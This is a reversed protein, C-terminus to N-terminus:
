MLICLERLFTVGIIILPPFNRIDDTLHTLNHLSNVCSKGGEVEEKLIKHRWILRELTRLMEPKIRDKWM